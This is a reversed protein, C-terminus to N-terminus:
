ILVTRWFYASQNQRIQIPQTKGRTSAIKWESFYRMDLLERDRNAEKKRHHALEVVNMTIEM